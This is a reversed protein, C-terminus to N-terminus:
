IARRWESARQFARYFTAISNFGCALAIDTISREPNAPLGL